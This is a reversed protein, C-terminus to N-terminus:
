TSAPAASLSYASANELIHDAVKTALSMITIQPNVAVSTPVISGDAVFLNKVDHTEGSESVVSTKPNVGMRCTGLPHQSGSEVWKGKIKDVNLSDLEDRSRVVPTQHFPLYVTHAGAEFYMQGLRILGRLLKSKDEPLMKYTLLPVRNLVHRVRGTSVDSIMVGFASLNRFNQMHEWNEEGFGPLTAAVVGTPPIITIMKIGEQYFEDIVYSQFAGKWAELPEDFVGYVRAGPHLTLNRGVQGSRRGVGAKQLLLPTGVSSAAVVVVKARISFKHRRCGTRRDLVSGRAGVAKGGKIILEDVRMDSYVTAGKERATKLYTILVSKKNDHPCCSICRCCGDCDVVNRDITHGSLGKKQSIEIIKRAGGSHLEEPVRGVQVKSEIREFIGEMREQTFTSLQHKERWDDIVYDPTRFCVGGNVTSSGGVCRGHQLLILPTDGIGMVPTGGYDRYMYRFTESPTFKSYDKRSYHGGEEVVTVSYGGDALEGAVVAGGAGSGIILVETSLDLNKDIQNGEIIM